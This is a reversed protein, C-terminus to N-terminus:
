QCRKQIEAVMERQKEESKGLAIKDAASLPKVVDLACNCRRQLQAEIDPGSKGQKSAAERASKLCNELFSENFSKEFAPGSQQYLLFAGIVAVVAVGGAIAAVKMAGM